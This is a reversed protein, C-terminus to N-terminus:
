LKSKLTVIVIEPPNLIRIEDPRSELGGSIIVKSNEVTYEGKYYKVDDGHSKLIRDRIVPLNVLGGHLHGSLILDYDYAAPKEALNGRHFLYVTFLDKDAIKKDLQNLHKNVVDDYRNILDDSYAEDQAGVLNIVADRKKLTVAKDDLCVAGADEVYKFFAKTVAEDAWREHNGSIVYTPAIQVLGSILQQSNEFAAEQSNITDGVVAIIDPSQKKMQKLVKGYNGGNHFDSIVGIKYGNFDYPVKKSLMQYSSCSVRTNSVFLYVVACVTLLLVVGAAWCLVKLSKRAAGKM